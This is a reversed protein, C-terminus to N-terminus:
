GARLAIWDPVRAPTEVRWRGDAEVMGHDAPFAACTKNRGTDVLLAAEVGHTEELRALFATEIGLGFVRCSLVMQELVRDRLVAVSVLGNDGFRDSARLGVLTGGAAFLAGIEADSWRKGTTNFQNTKNLLEFARAFDPDSKAGIPRIAVAVALDRLWDERSQGAAAEDRKQKAAILATRATSEATVAAVQTHPSHLIHARWLSEDGTLTRIEPFARTVEDIERPNDDVFLVNGPLLNTAALIRRISESKPGWNIELACFDDIRLRDGWVKAFRAVTEDHDNKSAIALLGGRRKFELLAEAYGLPWGEVHEHPVIEDFEALVGRWLTNDLDTVILKIPAPQALVVLARHLRVVLATHFEDSLRGRIGGHTFHNTWGDSLDRDGLHHLVDNLELYHCSPDAELADAMADNLLTVVRHLSRRRGNLLLGQSTSPPEIFGVVFVPARGAVAASIDAVIREVGARHAAVFADFAADDAIRAHALDDGFLGRLNPTVVVADFGAWDLDPFGAAPHSSYLHSEVTDGAAEFARSLKDTMCTGLVAVRLPKAFAEPCGERTIGLYDHRMAGVHRRLWRSLRIKLRQLM